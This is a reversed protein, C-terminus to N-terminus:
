STIPMDAPPSVPADHCTLLMGGAGRATFVGSGRHCLASPPLSSPSDPRPIRYAQAPTIRCDSVSLLGHHENVDDKEVKTVISRCMCLLLDDVVAVAQQALDGAHMVGPGALGGHRGPRHDVVAVLDAQAYSQVIQGGVIGVLDMRQVQVEHGAVLLEPRAHLHIVVPSPPSRLIFLASHLVPRAASPSFDTAPQINFTPHQVNPTRLQSSRTALTQGSGNTITVVDRRGLPDYHHITREAYTGATFDAPTLYRREEALRGLRKRDDTPVRVDDDYVLETVQGKFDTHTLQRGLNDYIWSDSDNATNGDSDPPLTRSTRQGTLPDYAFSTTHGYPDTQATQQGFRDYEYHWHPL